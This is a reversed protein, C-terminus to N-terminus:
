IHLSFKSHTPTQILSSIEPAVARTMSCLRQSILGDFDFVFIRACITGRGHIVAPLHAQEAGPTAQKQILNQNLRSALYPVVKDSGVREHIVQFASASINLSRRV